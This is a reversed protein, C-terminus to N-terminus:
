VLFSCLFSIIKSYLLYSSLFPFDTLLMRRRIDPNIISVKLKQSKTVLLWFTRCGWTTKRATRKLPRPRYRSRPHIIKMQSAVNYIVLLTGNWQHYQNKQKRSTVLFSNFNILIILFLTPPNPITLEFDYM